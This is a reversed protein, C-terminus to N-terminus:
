PQLRFHTNDRVSEATDRYSGSHLWARVRQTLPAIQPQAEWTVPTDDQDLVRGQAVSKTAEALPLHSLDRQLALFRGETQPDVFRFFRSYLDANHFHMPHNLLGDCRLRVGMLRLLYGFHPFLGLGPHEQEPLPPREPPFSATPDQMLLWNIHLMHCTSTDPLTLERFGVIAEILLHEPSAQGNHIRVIHDNADSLDASIQPDFGKARLLDFFGYREFALRAGHESYLNLFHRRRAQPNFLDGQLDSEEWPSPDNYLEERTLSAFIKDYSKMFPAPPLDGEETHSGSWWRQLTKWLRRM